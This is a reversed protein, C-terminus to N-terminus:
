IFHILFALTWLSIIIPVFHKLLIKQHFNYISPFNFYAFLIMWASMSYYAPYAYRGALRNPISFILCFSFSFILFILSSQSKIFKFEENKILKKVLAYIFFLAWPLSYTLVHQFYYFFNLFKQVIFSHQVKVELAREVFQLRYFENIFSVGTTRYFFQEFFYVSLICFLLNLFNLIFLSPLQTTLKKGNFLVGVFFLLPGFIVFPGKIMLLSWSSVILLMANLFFKDAYNIGSLLALFVFFTIGSEHNARLNFAFANSILLLGFFLFLADEIKIFKAAIEFILFLTMVQFIMQIIHLSHKPNLGLKAGVVGLVMQGPFQDRMYSNPDFGYNVGWKPTLIEAWPRNYYKEVQESYFRSDNSKSAYQTQSLFFSAFILVISWIVLLRSKQSLNYFSNM